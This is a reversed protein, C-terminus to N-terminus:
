IKKIKDLGKMAVGFLLWGLTKDKKQSKKPKSLEIDNKYMTKVENLARQYEKIPYTNEEIIGQRSARKFYERIVDSTSLARFVNYITGENKSVDIAKLIRDKFYMVLEESKQKELQKNRKYLKIENACDQAEKKSELYAIARRLEDENKDHFNLGRKELERSIEELNELEEKLLSLRMELSESGKALEKAIDNLLDKTSM